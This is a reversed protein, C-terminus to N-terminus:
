LNWDYGKVCANIDLREETDCRWGNFIFQEFCKLSNRTFFAYKQGCVLYYVVLNWISISLAIFCLSLCHDAFTVFFFCLRSEFGFIVERVKESFHCNDYYRSSLLCIWWFCGLRCSSRPEITCWWQRKPRKGCLIACKRESSPRPPHQRQWRNRQRTSTSLPHHHPHKQTNNRIKPPSIGSKTPTITTTHHSNTQIDQPSAHHRRRHHWPTRYHFM